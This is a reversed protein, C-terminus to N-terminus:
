QQFSSSCPACLLLLLHLIVVVGSHFYFFVCKLQHLGMRYTYYLTSYIAKHLIHRTQGSRISYDNHPDSVISISKTQKETTKNRKLDIESLYKSTGETSVTLGNRGTLM